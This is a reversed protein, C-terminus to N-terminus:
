VVYESWEWNVVLREAVFRFDAMAALMVIMVAIASSSSSESLSTGNPANKSLTARVSDLLNTLLALM